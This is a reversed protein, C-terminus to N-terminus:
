VISSFMQKVSNPTTQDRLHKNSYKLFNLLNQAQATLEQYSARDASGPPNTVIVRSSKSKARARKIGAEQELIDVVSKINIPSDKVFVGNVSLHDYLLATAVMIRQVMGITGFKQFNSRIESGLIKICIKSFSVILELPEAKTDADKFFKTIIDIINNLAPTANIYFMSLSELNQINIASAYKEEVGSKKSKQRLTFQRKVYSIDNSINQATMKLADFRSDYDLIKGLQLMMFMHDKFIDLVTTSQRSDGVGTWMQSLIEPVLQNLEDTMNKLDVLNSILPIMKAWTADQVEVSPNATAEFIFKKGGTGYNRLNELLAESKKVKEELKLSFASNPDAKVDDSEFDLFIGFKESVEPDGSDKLQHIAALINGM